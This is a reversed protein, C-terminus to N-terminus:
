SGLECGVCTATPLRIWEATIVYDVQKLEERFSLIELKAKNSFMGCSYFWHFSFRVLLTYVPGAHWWHGLRINELHQPTTDSIARM